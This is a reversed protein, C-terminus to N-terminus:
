SLACPGELAQSSLLFSSSFFSGAALDTGQVGFGLGWVEFGLGWVGFELYRLGFGWGSFGLGVDWVGFM